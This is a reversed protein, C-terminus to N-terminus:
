TELGGTRTYPSATRFLCRIFPVGSFRFVRDPNVPSLLLSARTSVAGCPLEAEVWFGDDVQPSVGSFWVAGGISSGAVDARCGSKGERSSSPRLFERNLPAKVMRRVARQWMCYM